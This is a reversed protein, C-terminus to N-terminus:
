DNADEQSRLKAKCDVCLPEGLNGTLEGSCPGDCEACPVLLTGDTDIYDSCHRM